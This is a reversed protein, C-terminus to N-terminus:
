GVGISVRMAVLATIEILGLALGFLIPLALQRWTSVANELKGVSLMIVSNLLSLLLLIGGITIISIPILLQDTFVVVAAIELAAVLLLWGLERWNKITREGSPTAWIASNFIPPFLASLALGYLTGTIIRIVNTTHYLQPAGPIVSITSNVGDIGMIIIFGVLLAVIPEPPLRAAKTRGRLLLCITGTVFGLYMGTCRACLPYQHEHAFFSRDPMQHCLAYGIWKAKGLWSDPPANVFLAVISLLGGVYIARPLRAWPSSPLAPDSDIPTPSAQMNIGKM